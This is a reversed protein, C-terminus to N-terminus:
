PGPSRAGRVGLDDVQHAAEVVAGAEGLVLPLVGDLRREQAAHHGLLQPEVELERAAGREHVVDALRQGVLEVARVGDDAGVVRAAQALASTTALAM